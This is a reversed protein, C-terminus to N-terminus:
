YLFYYVTHEIKMQIKKEIEPKLENENTLVTDLYTYDKVIDFNCTSLKEYENEHYMKRSLIMFRTKEEIIELGM